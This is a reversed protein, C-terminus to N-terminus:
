GKESYGKEGASQELVKGITHAAEWMSLPKLIIARIGAEKFGKLAAAEGTGACLIVPLDPRLERVQQALELGTMEALTYDAIIVDFFDRPRSQLAKLVAAPDTATTVQYGLAELAEQGTDPWTRPDAALLIHKKDPGASGEGKGARSPPRSLRPLFIHFVAGEKASEVTIVGAHAKILRQAVTLGLGLGQGPPRTTFFPLFIKPVNDPTIGHGTDRLSLQLCPGPSMGRRSAAEPGLHVEKLTIEWVGGQGRMAQRANDWLHLLVQQLSGPDALVLDQSTELNMTIEIHPSLSAPISGLTDRLLRGLRVPRRCLSLPATLAGIQAMQQRGKEGVKLIGALPRAQLSGGASSKHAMHAYGLIVALLHECRTAIRAAAVAAEGSLWESPSPGEGFNAAEAAEQLLIDRHRVRGSADFGLSGWEKCRIMRGDRTRLHYERRCVGEQASPQFFAGWVRERDEEPILDPFRCRGQEFDEPAYGTLRQLYNGRFRATGDPYVRGAAVPLHALLLDLHARSEELAAEQEVQISVDRLRGLVKRIEGSGPDRLPVTALELWRGQREPSTKLWFRSRAPSGTALTEVAACSSCPQRAGHFLRHCTEGTLPPAAGLLQALAPSAELLTLERDLILIGEEQDAMVAAWKAKQEELIVELTKTATGDSIIVYGGALDGAEQKFPLWRATFVGEPGAPSLSPLHIEEGWAGLRSCDGPPKLECEAQLAPLVQFLHRGVAEARGLGSLREMVPNWLTVTLNEDFGAVGEAVLKLVEGMRSNEEQLHRSLRVGELGQLVSRGVLQELLRRRGRESSCLAERAQQLDTVDCAVGELHQSDPWLRASWRLWFRSGDRRRCATSINELTGDKIAKVVYAPLDPDAFYDAAAFDRLFEEQHAFGFMRALSKNCYLFKNDKLSYHFIGVQTNDFLFRLREEAEQLYHTRDQQEDM